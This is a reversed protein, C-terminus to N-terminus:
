SSIDDYMGEDISDFGRKGNLGDKKISSKDRIAAM